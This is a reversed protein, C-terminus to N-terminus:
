HSAPAAEAPPPAAAGDAVPPAAADAPPATGAPAPAPLGSAEPTPVFGAGVVVDKAGPGRAWTIFEGIAGTPAGNTYFFLPRSFPYKGDLVNAETPEVCAEGEGKALCVARANDAYYGMGGYGVACATTAVVDVVQQTGSQDMTAAFKAEKGLVHEKFYEYTGANNQRGVKVIMDDGKGDCDLTVGVDKWHACAGDSAYICKLQAFDLQTIPNAKNVYISLGDFAIVTQVPDVGNGKALTIEEEKMARSAAAVDTTKDILAKIGTGSGGGTVAVVLKPNLKAYAESYAQMLNVMTDSGKVQVVQPADTPAPAGDKAPEPRSCATAVLLTVLGLRFM